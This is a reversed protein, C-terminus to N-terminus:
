NFSLLNRNNTTNDYAHTIKLMKSGDVKARVWIVKLQVLELHCLDHFVIDAKLSINIVYETNYQFPLINFYLICM